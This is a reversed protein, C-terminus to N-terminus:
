PLLRRLVADLRQRGAATAALRGGELRLLGGAALRDLARRDVAEALPRGAAAEVRAVPVGEALRLGMM